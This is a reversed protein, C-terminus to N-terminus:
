FEYKGVQLTVMAKRMRRTREAATEIRASGDTDKDSLLEPYGVIPVQHVNGRNPVAVDMLFAALVAQPPIGDIMFGTMLNLVREFVKTQSILQTLVGNEEPILTRVNGLEDTVFFDTGGDLIGPILMHVGKRTPETLLPKGAATKASFLESCCKANATIQHQKGLVDLFLVENEILVLGPRQFRIAEEGPDVLVEEGNSNEMMVPHGVTDALLGCVLSTIDVETIHNRYDEALKVIPPRKSMQAITKDQKYREIDDWIQQEKIGYYIMRISYGLHYQVGADEQAAKRAFTTVCHSVVVAEKSPQGEKSALRPVVREVQGRIKNWTWPLGMSEAFHRDREPNPLRVINNVDGAFIITDTGIVVTDGGFGGSIGRIVQNVKWASALGASHLSVELNNALIEPDLAEIAFPTKGPRTFYQNLAEMLGRTKKGSPNSAIVIRSINRLFKADSIDKFAIQALVGGVEETPLWYLLLKHLEEFVRNETPLSLKSKSEAKSM